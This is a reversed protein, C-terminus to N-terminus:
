IKRKWPAFNKQRQKRDDVCFLMGVDDDDDDDDDDDYNDVNGVCGVTM